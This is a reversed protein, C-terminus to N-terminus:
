VFVASKTLLLAPLETKGFFFRTASVNKDTERDRADLRQRGSHHGFHMQQSAIAPLPLDWQLQHM